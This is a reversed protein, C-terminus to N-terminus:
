QTCVEIIDQKNVKNQITTLDAKSCLLMSKDVLTNTEHAYVYRYKGTEWPKRLVFGLVINTKAACDLKEFVQDLKKHVINPDLKSLQFNIVEHRGNRMETDTLFPQSADLKGRLQDSEEENELIKNSDAVFNSTKRTKM